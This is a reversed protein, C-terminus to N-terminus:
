STKGGLKKSQSKIYKEDKERYNLSIQIDNQYTISVIDSNEHLWNIFAQSKPKNPLEIDIKLDYKISDLISEVVQSKYKDEIASIPIIDKVKHELEIKEITRELKNNDFDDRENLLPLEEGIKDIKNLVLIIDTPKIDPLLINFSTNLKRNIEDFPESSDIL